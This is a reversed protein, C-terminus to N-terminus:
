SGPAPQPPPDAAPRSRRRGFKRVLTMREVHPRLQAHEDQRVLQRSVNYAQLVALGVRHRRILNAAAVGRLLSRLESEAVAWRAIEDEAQHLDEATNGIAEQVVASAGVAGIGERAFEADVKALRRLQRAERGNSLQVFDPIQQRLLRLQEVVQEPTLPPTDTASLEANRTAASKVVSM